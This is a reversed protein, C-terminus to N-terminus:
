LIVKEFGWGLASLPKGVDEANFYKTTNLMRKTVIIHPNKCYKIISDQRYETEEVCDKLSVFKGKPTLWFGKLYKYQTKNLKITESIKLKTEDSRKIGYLHSDKGKKHITNGLMRDSLNKCYSESMKKGKHRISNITSFNIKANEYVTSTVKYVRNVDGTLQNCMAWFAFKLGNSNPHIKILIRHLIFHVRGSVYILNDVSNNGGVCKPIIHHRETYVNKPKFTSGYNNIINKYLKIYNM